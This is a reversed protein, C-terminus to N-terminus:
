FRLVGEQSGFLELVITRSVKLFISFNHPRMKNRSFVARLQGSSFIYVFGIPRDLTARANGYWWICILSDGLGFLYKDSINNEMETIEFCEM